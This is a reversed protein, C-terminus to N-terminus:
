VAKGGRDWFQNQHSWGQDGTFSLSWFALLTALGWSSAM